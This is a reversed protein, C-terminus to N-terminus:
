GKAWTIRPFSVPKTAKPIRRVALSSSSPLILSVCVSSCQIESVLGVVQSSCSSWVKFHNDAETEMKNFGAPRTGLSAGAERPAWSGLASRSRLCAPPPAEPSLPRQPAAAPPGPLDRSAPIILRPAAGGRAGGAERRRQGAEAERGSRKPNVRPKASALASPLLNARPQTAAAPGPGRHPSASTPRLGRGPASRSPSPWPAHPAPSCGSPRHSALPRPRGPKPRNAHTGPRPDWLARPRAHSTSQCAQRKDYENKVPVRPPFPFTGPVGPPEGPLHDKGRHALEKRTPHLPPPWTSLTVKVTRVALVFLSPIGRARGWARGQLAAFM